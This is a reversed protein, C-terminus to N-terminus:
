SETQIKKIRPAVAPLQDAKPWAKRLETLAAKTDNKKGLTASYEAVNLWALTSLCVNRPMLIEQPGTFEAYARGRHATLWRAEGLAATLDKNAAYAEMLAAHSVYLESGDISPKLLQIADAAHGARQEREAEAVVRMKTLMPYDGSQPEPGAASIAENALNVEGRNALLYGMFLLEFQVEQRDTAPVSALSAALSKARARLAPTQADPDIESGLGLSVADLVRVYPHKLELAMKQGTQMLNRTKDWDGQDIAVAIRPIYAEIDKGPLDFVRSNALLSDVKDFNRRVADVLVFDASWELGGAKAADFDQSALDYDGRGLHLMGLVVHSTPAYPNRPSAAAKASEVVDDTYRNAFQWSFYAFLGRATFFDPYLTALLKWKDIASPQSGSLSAQWAELYLADRPSLRDSTARASKLEAVADENQGGVVLARAFGIRALAFESDLKIAQQYLALSEKFHTANYAHEALSYARLADLNKTAVKALPQSDSSVTALAEGLRVRLKQNIKDLSPLVSETGSGDASESWVTTQTQPDIVEATVRVRGGIEAVTPLILARAGDRIAVESGIARDVRTKEPDRQMLKVTERTKLDSLM